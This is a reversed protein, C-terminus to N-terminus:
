SAESNQFEQWYASPSMGHLSKFATFFTIRSNFGCQNALAEITFDDLYGEQIKEVSLAIRKKIILEKFGCGYVAKILDSTQRISLGIREALDHLELHKDSIVVQDSLAYKLADIDAQKYNKESKTSKTKKQSREEIAVADTAKNLVLNPISEVVEPRFTLFANFLLLALLNAYSFFSMLDAVDRDWLFGLFETSTYGLYSFVIWGMFFMVVFLWQNFFKFDLKAFLYPKLRYILVASAIFYAVQLGVRMMVHYKIPILGNAIQNLLRPDAVILEAAQLKVETSELYFPVLDVLHILAPLFHIWDWRHFGREDILSNRVFIYFLPASLYMLPSVTRMLHPYEIIYGAEFWLFYVLLFLNYFFMSAGLFRNNQLYSKKSLMLRTSNITAFSLLVIVALLGLQM